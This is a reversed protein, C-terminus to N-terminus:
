SGMGRTEGTGRKLSNQLYRDWALDIRLDHDQAFQLAACIESSFALKVEKGDNCEHLDPLHSLLHDKLRTSNVCEPVHAGHGELKSSYLKTM